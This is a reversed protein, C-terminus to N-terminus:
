QAQCPHCVVHAVGHECLGTQENGSTHRAKEKDIPRQALDEQAVAARVKQAKRQSPAAHQQNLPVGVDGGKSRQQQTHM